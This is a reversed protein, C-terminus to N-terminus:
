EFDQNLNKLQKNMKEQLDILKMNNKLLLEAEELSIERWSRNSTRQTIKGNDDIYMVMPRTDRTLEIVNRTYGGPNEKFFFKYHEEYTM